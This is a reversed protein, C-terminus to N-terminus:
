AELQECIGTLTESAEALPYTLPYTLTQPDFHDVTVVRFM